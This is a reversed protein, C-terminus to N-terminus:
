VMRFKGLILDDIFDEIQFFNKEVIEEVKEGIRKDLDEVSVSILAPQNVSQGIKSVLWVTNKKGTKKYIEDAIKFSL